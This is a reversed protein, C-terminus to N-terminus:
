TVDAQGVAATARQGDFRYRAVYGAVQVIRNVAGDINSRNLSVRGHGNGITAVTPHCQLGKSTADVRRDDEIVLRAGVLMDM